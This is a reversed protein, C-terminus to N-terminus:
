NGYNIEEEGIPPPEGPLQSERWKLFDDIFGDMDNKEDEHIRNIIVKANQKNLGKNGTAWDILEKSETDSLGAKKCKFWIYGRQGKTAEEPKKDPQGDKKEPPSEKTKPPPKRTPKEPRADPDLEDNDVLYLLEMAYKHAYSACAGTIQAADMGKKSEQERAYASVSIKEAGLQLTLTTKLYHREGVMVIEDNFYQFAPPLHPKIAEYLQGASRYHFKSFDNWLTKPCKLCQQIEVLKEHLTPDSM